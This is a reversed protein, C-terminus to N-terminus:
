GEHHRAEPQAIVDGAKLGSLIEVEGEADAVPSALAVPADIFREGVRVRVFDVGYRTTVYSAPVRIARREGVPALVDVREGVLASLGGQVVADAIVAGNRLEPYIKVVSASRVEGNRSPLRLTIVSGEELQGAHREPLSLRVVGDLTAFSAIVEGPSVVSGQVVGVATVRADAPARIEGERRRAELARREAEASTLTRQAVDLGTRLEDLKAKAFFGQAFLEEARALDAENQKIQSQVGEIRASLAAIQPVLTEDTVVAVLDGQRVVSGEDISLRTVVGQLRSRATATDGAEVRAVVTRFDVVVREDVTLTVTEASAGAALGGAALGLAILALAARRLDFSAM